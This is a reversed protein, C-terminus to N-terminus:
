EIGDETHAVSDVFSSSTSYMIPFETWDRIGIGGNLGLLHGKREVM